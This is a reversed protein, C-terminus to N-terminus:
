HCHALANSRKKEERALLKGCKTIAVHEHEGDQEAQTPSQALGHRGDHPIPNQV